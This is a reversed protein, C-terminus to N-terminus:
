QIVFQTFFVNRVVERKLQKNVTERIVKKLDDKGEILMLSAASQQTLHTILEDRIAVFKYSLQRPLDPTNFEIQVQLRIYKGDALNVLFTEFPAIAGPAEEGDLLVIDDYEGEQKFTAHESEEEAISVEPTEVEEGPTTPMLFYGIPAGVGVCVLFVATALVFKNELFRRPSKEAVEQVESEEAM